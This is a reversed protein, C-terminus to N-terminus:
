KKKNAKRASCKTLPITGAKRLGGLSTSSQSKRPDCDTVRTQKGNHSRQAIVVGKHTTCPNSHINLDRIASVKHRIHSDHKHWRKGRRSSCEANDTRDDTTPRKVRTEMTLM